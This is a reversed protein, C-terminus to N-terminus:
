KQKGYIFTKRSIIDHESNLVEIDWRGQWASSMKQTSILTSKPPEITFSQTSLYQNNFRWRHYITQPNAHEIQTLFHLTRIYKPVHDSLTNVSKNDKIQASLQSTTINIPSDIVPTLPPLPKPLNAQEALNAQLDMRQQPSLVSLKVEDSAATSSTAQDRQLQSQQAIQAQEKEYSYIISYATAVGGLVMVAGWLFRCKWCTKVSNLLGESVDQHGQEWGRQFYDRMEFDRRVASPMNAMTKGELALRYGTKFAYQFHINDTEPIQM